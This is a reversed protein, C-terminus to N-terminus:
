KLYLDCYLNSYVKSSNSTVIQTNIANLGPSGLLLFKNSQINYTGLYIFTNNQIYINNTQNVRYYAPIINSLNVSELLLWRNLDAYISQNVRLNNWVKAGTVEMENFTPNDIKNNLLYSTPNDGTVEYIWGSNFLMFICLIVSIMKFIFVSTGARMKLVWKLFGLGSEAGLIIYPALTLTTIQFLRTTNLANSIYPLLLGGFCLFFNAFSLAKYENSFKLKHYNILLSFIGISILFILFLDLYKTVEHLLSGQSTILITLGQRSGLNLFDTVLTNIFRSGLSTVHILTQSSAIYVNWTFTITIFFIVIYVNIIRDNKMVESSSKIRYFFKKILKNELINEILLMFVLFYITFYSLGYHSVSLSALFIVILFSKKSKELQNNTILYVVLVFFLEAIEQRGLQPMEWYFTYLSIVFFSALFATKENFQKKFVFYLCCPVLAFLLPYVIKFIWVLDINMIISYIPALMVISLMGNIDYSLTSNWSSNKIVLSSLYYEQQIDAGSIYTSLLSKNFLLAISISFILIIILYNNFKSRFIIFVPIISIILYLFILLINYNYYFSYYVGLISILIFTFIIFIYKIPINLHNIKESFGKDIIYIILSLATIFTLLSIVLNNLTISIFSFYLGLYNLGLGISMLSTISLGISYFIVENNELERIKFVRLLYFGPIFTIYFFTFLYRIFAYGSFAFDIETFVIFLINLIFTLKLLNKVDLNNIKVLNPIWM